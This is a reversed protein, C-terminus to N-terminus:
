FLKQERRLDQIRKQPLGVQQSISSDQEGKQILSSAIEEAKERSVIVFRFATKGFQDERVIAYKGYSEVPRPAYDCSDEYDWTLRLEEDDATIIVGDGSEDSSSVYYGIECPRTTLRRDCFSFVDDVSSHTTVVRSIKVGDIESRLFVANPASMSKANSFVSFFIISCFLIKKMDFRWTTM